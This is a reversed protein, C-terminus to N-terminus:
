LSDVFRRPERDEEAVQDCSETDHGAGRWCWCGHYGLDWAAGDSITIVSGDAFTYRTSERAWNQDVDVGPTKQCVTFIDAGTPDEFNQGDNGFREAIRGAESFDLPLLV